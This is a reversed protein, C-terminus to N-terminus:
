SGLVTTFSLDQEELLPMMSAPGKPANKPNEIVTATQHVDLGIYDRGKRHHSSLWSSSSATAGVDREFACGLSELTEGQKPSSKKQQSQLIQGSCSIAQQKGLNQCTKLTFLLKRFFAQNTTTPPFFGRSSWLICNADNAKRFQQEEGIDIFQQLHNLM